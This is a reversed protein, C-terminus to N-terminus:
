RGHLKRVDQLNKIHCQQLQKSAHNFASHHNKNGKQISLAQLKIGREGVGNIIYNTFAKQQALTLKNQSNVANLVIKTGIPDADAYTQCMLYAHAIREKTLGKEAKFIGKNLQNEVMAILHTAKHIELSSIYPKNKISDNHSLTQTYAKNASIVSKTKQSSHQLQYAKKNAEIKRVTDLKLQIFSDPLSINTYAQPQWVFTDSSAEFSKKQSTKIEQKHTDKLLKQIGDSGSKLAFLGFAAITLGYVYKKSKKWLSKVSPLFLFKKKQPSTKESATAETTKKRSFFNKIKLMKQQWPTKLEIDELKADSPNLGQKEYIHLYAQHAQESYHGQADYGAAEILEKLADFADTTSNDFDVDNDAISFILSEVVGEAHENQMEPKNIYKRNYRIARIYDYLITSDIDFPGYKIKTM